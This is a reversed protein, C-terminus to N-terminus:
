KALILAALTLVFFMAFSIFVQSQPVKWASHNRKVHRLMALLGFITGGLFLGAAIERKFPVTLYLSLNTQPINSLALSVIMLLGVGAAYFTNPRATDILSKM